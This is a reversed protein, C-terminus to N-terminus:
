HILKGIHVFEANMFKQSSGKLIISKKELQSEPM